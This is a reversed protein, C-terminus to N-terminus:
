RQLGAAHAGAAVSVTSPKYYRVWDVLLGQANQGSLPGASLVISDLNSGNNVPGALSFTQVGDRYFTYGNTPDWLLGWIHFADSSSALSSTSVSQHCGAYGSWHVHSGDGGGIDEIIDFEAGGTLPLCNTDTNAIGWFTDHHGTDTRLRAEYYGPGCCISGNSLVLGKPTSLESGISASASFHALGDGGPNVTLNTQNNCCAAM